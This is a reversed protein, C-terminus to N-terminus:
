PDCCGGPAYGAKIAEERTKFKAKCNACGAYPCSSRHFKHSSTNGIYPARDRSSAETAAGGPKCFGCPRYGSERAEHATDFTVTCNSCSYYRCSSQHFVRTRSNGHFPDSAQSASVLLILVFTAVLRSPIM